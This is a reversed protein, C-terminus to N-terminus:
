RALPLLRLSSIQIAQIRSLPSSFITTNYHPLRIANPHVREQGMSRSGRTQLHNPVTMTMTATLPRSSSLGAQPSSPTTFTSTMPKSPSALLSPLSLSPKGMPYTFWVRPWPLCSYIRAIHMHTLFHLYTLVIGERRWPDKDTRGVLGAVRSLSLLLRM